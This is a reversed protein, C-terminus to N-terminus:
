IFSTMLLINSSYILLFCGKGHMDCALEYMGIEKVVCKCFFRQYGAFNSYRFTNM